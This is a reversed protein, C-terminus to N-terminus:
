RGRRVSDSGTAEWGAGSLATEVRPALFGLGVAVVVWAVVLRRPDRRLPRAPRHPWPSSMPAGRARRRVGKAARRLRPLRRRSSPLQNVGVFATLLLWWPSVLAALLAGLTVTGAIVFLTRELPWGRGRIRQSGDDGAGAVKAPRQALSTDSM